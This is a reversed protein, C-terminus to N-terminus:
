KAEAALEKLKATVARNGTALTEYKKYDILEVEGLGNVCLAIRNQGYKKSIIPECEYWAKNTTKSINDLLDKKMEHEGEPNQGKSIKYCLLVTFLRFLGAFDSRFGFSFCVKKLKKQFPFGGNKPPKRRM